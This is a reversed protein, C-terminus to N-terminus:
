QCGCVTAILARKFGKTPKFDMTEGTVTWMHVLFYRYAKCLSCQQVHQELEENDQHSTPEWAGLLFLTTVMHLYHLRKNAAACPLLATLSSALLQVSREFQAQDDLDIGWHGVDTLAKTDM